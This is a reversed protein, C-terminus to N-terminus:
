PMPVYGLGVDLFLQGDGAIAVGVKLDRASARAAVIEFRRTSVFRPGDLEVIDAHQVVESFPAAVAEALPGQVVFHEDLEKLIRDLATAAPMGLDVIAM